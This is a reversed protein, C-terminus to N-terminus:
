ILQSVTTFTPRPRPAILKHQISLKRNDVRDAALLASSIGLAEALVAIYISWLDDFRSCVKLSLIHFLNNIYIVNLISVHRHCRGLSVKERINVVMRRERATHVPVHQHYKITKPSPRSNSSVPLTYLHRHHSINYRRAKM